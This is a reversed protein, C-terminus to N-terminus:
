PHPASRSPDLDIRSMPVYDTVHFRERGGPASPCILIGGLDQKSFTENSSHADDNWDWDYDIKSYTSGQEFYPLLLSIGNHRALPPPTAQKWSSGTRSQAAPPFKRYTSEFNIAALGINKLNNKCDTRRAAERAAQVAPLLLAILIGIIAIVVLLEVLTFGRRGLVGASSIPSIAQRGRSYLFSRM